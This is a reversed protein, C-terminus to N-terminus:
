ANAGIWSLVEGANQDPPFVPYFLYEEGRFEIREVLDETTRPNLKGGSQRPDIYTNLGIKTMYGPSKRAVERLWQMSAGIPWSYAEVLNERIVRMLEPRKGTVPHAPNVYSGSVIRKMLGPIAVRDMGPIDQGDGTSAIERNLEPRPTDTM